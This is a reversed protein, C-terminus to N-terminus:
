TRLLIIEQPRSGAIEIHETLQELPRWGDTTLYRGNDDLRELYLDQYDAATHTINWGVHLNHAFHPFGPLGPFAAGAVDFEPCTVHVQWYVSPVDLARHSDNCLVPKGSTTRSGHLVWSNSGGETPALFGLQTAATHLNESSVEFTRKVGATPPLIVASGIPPRGDLKAYAAPGIRALLQAQALKKQWPGMLVHRVKFIACSDTPTLPTPTLGTLAYEPPLPEGSSIYANVGACYSEFMRRTTPSFSAADAEASRQLQLRRALTDGALACPGALESWRGLARRRDYEIQWLRDRAAAYGQGFFADDESQARIHAIGHPDRQIAIEAHLGKVTTM